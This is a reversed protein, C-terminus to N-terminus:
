CITKLIKKRPHKYLCTMGGRGRSRRDGWAGLFVDAATARTPVGLDVMAMVAVVEGPKARSIRRPAGEMRSGRDTGGLLVDAATAWTPVGLDVMAM